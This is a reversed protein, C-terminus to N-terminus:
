RRLVDGSAHEGQSRLAIRDPDHRRHMRHHALCYIRQLRLAHRNEREDRLEGRGPLHWIDTDIVPLNPASRGPDKFMKALGGALEADEDAIM